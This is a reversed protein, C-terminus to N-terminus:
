LLEGVHGLFKEFISCLEYVSACFTRRCLLWLLIVACDVRWVVGQIESGLGRYMM